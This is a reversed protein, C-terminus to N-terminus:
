KCKYHKKWYNMFSELTPWEEKFWRNDDKSMEEYYHRAEDETFRSVNDAIDWSNYEKRYAKGNAIGYDPNNLKRRVRRNAIAKKDKKGEGNDKIIPNKRYSRSM